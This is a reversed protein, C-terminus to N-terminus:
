PEQTERELQERTRPGYTGREESPIGRWWQFTRLADEVRRDFTGDIDGLYLNIQRLRQQLETVEPGRDGPRLVAAGASDAGGDEDVAAPPADSASVSATPSPEASRSPSPSASSPSASPSSSPTASESASASPSPSASASPAPVGSAPAPNSPTGTSPDPVGARVEEPQAGDRSPGEYSLLGSAYGAAGLVVVVAAAAGVLVGRRRKRPHEAPAGPVDDPRPPRPAGTAEFLRLDTDSPPSVSPALPTPLVSTADPSPAAVTVPVTADEAAPATAPVPRLAMTADPGPEPAPAGGRSGTGGPTEADGARERAGATEATEPTGPTGPADTDEGGTELEVYPRIRLPDFDEAAAAEATRNRKVADAARRGCACTPTGDEGRHAGCEPCPHRSGEPQEM